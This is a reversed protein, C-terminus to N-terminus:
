GHMFQYLCINPIRGPKWYRSLGFLEHRTWLAGPVQSRFLFSLVFLDPASPSSSVWRCLQLSSPKLMTWATWQSVTCARLCLFLFCTHISWILHSQQLKYVTLSCNSASSCFWLSCFMLWVHVSIHCMENPNLQFRSFTCIRFPFTTCAGPVLTFVEASSRKIADTKQFASFTM